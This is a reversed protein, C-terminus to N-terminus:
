IVVQMLTTYVYDEKQKTLFTLTLNHRWGLYSGRCSKESVGDFGVFDFLEYVLKM